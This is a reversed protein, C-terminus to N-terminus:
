YILKTGTVSTQGSCSDYGDSWTWNATGSLTTDTATVNSGTVNTTGGATPYSGTWNITNGSIIGTFTAGVNDGATITVTINNGSQVVEATWTSVEGVVDCGQASTIEETVQWTGTLDVTPPLPTTGGGGGCGAFSVAAMLIVLGLIKKM